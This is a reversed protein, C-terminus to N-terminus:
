YVGALKGRRSRILEIVFDKILHMISFIAVFYDKNRPLDLGGQLLKSYLLM